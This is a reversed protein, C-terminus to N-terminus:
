TGLETFEPLDVTKQALHHTCDALFEIKGDTVFSHCTMDFGPYRDVGPPLNERRIMMAEGEPSARYSKVLVSPSFTPKEVSGNWTWRPGEGAGHYIVHNEDCGPCHFM